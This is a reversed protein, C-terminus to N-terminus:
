HEHDAGGDRDRVILSLRRAMLRLWGALYIMIFVYIVNFCYGMPRTLSMGSAFNCGVIAVLVGVLIMCSTFIKGREVAYVYGKGCLDNQGASIAGM